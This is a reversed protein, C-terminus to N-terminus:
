AASGKKGNKGAARADRERQEAYHALRELSHSWFREYHALWSMAQELPKALLEVTVVRGAKRRRVLGARDLVALHKMVAPLGMPLPAALESVSADGRKLQALIARRAPDSLAAFTRDLDPQM